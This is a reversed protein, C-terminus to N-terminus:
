ESRSPKSHNNSIFHQPNILLATAAPQTRAASVVANVLDPPPEGRNEIGHWVQRLRRRLESKLQTLRSERGRVSMGATQCDGSYGTFWHRQYVENNEDDVVSIFDDDESESLDLGAFFHNKLIFHFIRQYVILIFVACSHIRYSTSKFLWGVVGM